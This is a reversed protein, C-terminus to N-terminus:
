EKKLLRPATLDILFAGVTATVLIALVTGSLVISGCSLGMALPVGGIAAQVTAKPMYAFVCFLRERLDLRTKLMCILVGASRFVLAGLIVGLMPLWINGAAAPDVEAGVLVFLMIEAATWLRSYKASVRVAREPSKRRLFIGAAMVAVLGSFGIYDPLVNELTVLLFSISLMLMVKVSDRMHIKEFLVALLYGCVAGAAVGLIISVPINVISLVSVDGGACLGSFVSFMVIVFVDDMSAGAMIMQPIAKATGRKEDILRLMRPVVVAPSVAALVAGLTAAEPFSLGLLPQGLLIVGTMKCCAPVCTMMLAPRGCKKLDSLELNLGARTLIILLAVKRLDASIDMLSSDLWGLSGLLIGATIMGTLKPLRLKGAAEGLLLGSLMVLAISFLLM